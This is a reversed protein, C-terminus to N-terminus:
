PGNLIEAVRVAFRAPDHEAALRAAARERCAAWLAEDGYLRAIQRAFGTADNVPASLLEDGWGLQRALLDSAVAPVGFSAAEYIKYPTGAAFRTPAVFVRARAYLPALDAVEGHVAVFPSELGLAMGKAVHGAVHLVPPTGMLRALEPLIAAVYWRLADLNPSDEQHVAGVFLLGERAGFGSAGLCLGRGTGLVAVRKHGVGRIQAAEAENVALVLAGRPLGAFEAKLAARVDFAEGGLAARAAARNAAVAESDVVLRAKLGTLWPRLRRFNHTRSVWVLDYIGGREAFFAEAQTFDRDALVEVGEPLAGYLSMVDYPAGNVPLVQVEWGAAAMARVIDHARVFGSGLARLPVTDEIFLVRPRAVAMRARLANAASAELLGVLLAEHKRKFIRRARRMLAMSAESTVASGFEMHTLTVAPDYVVRLGAGRLRVCLDVDEYYAPAYAEDFGGLARVAETRCLLFVGSGFAVERVFNAEPALPEGDRLYGITTGDRWIIGGAEQLRGHTRVVKACVAGIDPAAHLRRLAAAVAGFGLEIDNNLYLVAPAAVYALALNAAKLFGVNEVLRLVTLGACFAEIRSTEDGSGNDALVVQMPGAFNRRLSALAQMTLEFRDHAVMIVALEPAGQYAFDLRQRAFLALGARAQRLFAERTATEEIQPAALPPAYALGEALGVQRLHAFADRMLGANLDNRVREHLDRYYSLDIGATPQRLEFCGHQVFQQYANRYMGAEIAAKIDPYRRRYFSESFEPVPDFLDPTKNTLYHHIAAGYKGRAIEARAGPHHAAYWAPDFYPSPAAEDEGGGLRGLFTEYPGVGEALGAEAKYFAGDFLFHGIRREFQGSKLYHDYRGFCQHLDLVDLTMDEYLDAYLADDFLWHPSLGRHGVQCFHDFGSAYRGARILEAVDPNQDLYFLEDFLPSPSHGLGAGVRLYYVLAAGPGKGACLARADAYRHLYWGEDFRAWAPKIARAPHLLEHAPRPM